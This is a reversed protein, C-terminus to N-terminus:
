LDMSTKLLDVCDDMAVTGNTPMVGNEKMSKFFTEMGYQASFLSPTSYIVISVGADELEQLTWNPSKGGQLQNVMIPCDIENSLKYVADLDTIAEVMVGDAGAEAYKVARGFGDISRIANYTKGTPADTRAIVFIDNRVSLVTKLKILYEDVPLVQKNEFHGCMRPRRQDEMMVASLNSNELLKVTNSAIVEDGFGDDIDVLIHKNPLVHRIRTSIDVQDRWNVFGIDPLGYASAATSFGSVFIGDFYKSAVLASFVDYVGILPLIKNTKIRSNFIGGASKNSM